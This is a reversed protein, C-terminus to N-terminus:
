FDVRYRAVFKDDETWDNMGYSLQIRTNGSMQYMYGLTWGTSDEDTDKDAYQLQFGMVSGTIAWPTSGGNGEAPDTDEVMFTGHVPGLDAGLHLGVRTRDTASDDHVGLAIGVPGANATIVGSTADVADQDDAVVGDPDALDGNVVFQIAGGVVMGTPLAYTFANSAFGPGSYNGLGNSAFIDSPSAIATYYPNWQQGLTATGFGGNLGAYALRGKAVNSTGDTTSFRAEYRFFSGRGNGLDHTGTIGWRSGGDDIKEEGGSVFQPRASGYLGLTSTSEEGDKDLPQQITAASAVMPTVFSAAVAMTILSKKM